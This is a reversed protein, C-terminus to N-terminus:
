AKMKITHFHIISKFKLSQEISRFFMKPMSFWFPLKNFNSWSVKMWLQLQFITKTAFTEEYKLLTGVMTM